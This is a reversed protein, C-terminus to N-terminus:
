DEVVNISYVVGEKGIVFFGGTQRNPAGVFVNENCIKQRFILSATSIEYVSLFSFKSIVFLLGYKSCMYM